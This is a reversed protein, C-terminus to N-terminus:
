LTKMKKGMESLKDIWKKKFKKNWRPTRESAIMQEGVFGLARIYRVTQSYPHIEYHELCWM